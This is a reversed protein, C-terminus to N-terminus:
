NINIDLADFDQSVKTEDTLGLDMSFGKFKADVVTIKREPNKNKTVGVLNFYPNAGNELDVLDTITEKDLFLREVSGTYTIQGDLIELPKKSGNGHIPKNDQEMSISVSQASGVISGGMEINVDELNFAQRLEAM